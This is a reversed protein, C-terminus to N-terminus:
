VVAQIRVVSTLGPKGWLEGYIMVVNEGKKIQKKSKLFELISNVSLDSKRKFLYYFPKVGWYLKMQDRTKKNATVAIIPLRPRLRSLYRATTGTETLVIVAALDCVGRYGCEILENAATVIAATQGMEKKAITVEFYEAKQESFSIERNMMEVAKIPYKGIASEQSLMVADTGDYVANFVDSIEARTPRSQEVMSLLMETATIVPKGKERSQKIIKKQWYPVEHLPVEAGLDGRAVMIVEAENVIEEFNKLALKREIKAVVGARIGRKKLNKKLLLIDERSSVFSLAVWDVQQRNKLSLCELDRQALAPIELALDPVNIGKGSKLEGGEVVKAKVRIQRDKDIKKDLVRFKFRGDDISVEQNKKLAAVVDVRDIPIMKKGFQDKGCFWVEDGRKLKMKEGELQGVRIDPGLLDIMVAVPSNLEEAVKKVLSIKEDHWKLTGHKMNFRFCDVGAKIMARIKTKTECAPGITAVIKTKTYDRPLM